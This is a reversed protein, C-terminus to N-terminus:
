IFISENQLNVSCKEQRELNVAQGILGNRPHAHAVVVDDTHVLSGEYRVLAKLRDELLIVVVGPRQLDLVGLGAIGAPVLALHGRLGLQTGLHM